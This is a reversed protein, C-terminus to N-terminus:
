DSLENETLKKRREKIEKQTKSINKRIDNILIRSKGNSEEAKRLYEDARDIEKM